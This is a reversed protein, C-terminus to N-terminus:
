DKFEVIAVITVIAVIGVIAVVGLRLFFLARAEAFVRKPKGM